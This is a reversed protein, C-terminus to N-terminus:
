SGTTIAAEILRQIAPSEAVEVSRVKVHRLNKGTGEIVGDPDPLSSGKAFGPNAHAKHVSIYMLWGSM